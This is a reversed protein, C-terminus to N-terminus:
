ALGRAKMGGATGLATDMKDAIGGVLTAGDLYIALNDMKTSMAQVIGLLAGMGDTTHNVALSSQVGLQSSFSDTTMATIDDIAKSIPRTNDEIGGALGKDLMEGVWAMEKSPSHIGFISKIGNLISTGFGRIKDLVWGTVDSIGQWLGKVLQTGINLMGSLVSPLVKLIASAINKLAEWATSLIQPGATRLANLISNIIQPMNAVLSSVITPIAQIIGMFMRVAGSVIMPINNVAFTVITDIITPMAQLLADIITPISDVFGMFMDIAANLVDPLSGTIFDCIGTIVAPLQGILDPLADLASQGISQMISVGTMVLEPAAQALDGLATWLASVLPPLIEPIVAGLQTVLSILAPVLTAVIQPVLGTVLSALATPLGVIINSIAPLLNNAVGIVSEMLGSVAGSFDGGTTIVALLNQFAAKAAGMSGSMTEGAEAAAVGTLGLDEQIVHIADYVDGLNDINYKVGSLKEADALLREMEQKTGGYGLKLNDLMTYNQKAFGQYATQISSLDTGMKASNDAMDKIATNAAEAAKLTDGGYAGKLAAGFSVAQEAYDNMSVGFKAAENAYERAKDAAAGYLTDLGGFYSQELDAGASLADKIIKGIGAAAVIKKITSVLSGGAKEGAAKGAEAPENGLAEGIKGKIGKASPVIQVYASALEAM